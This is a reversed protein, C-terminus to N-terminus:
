RRRRQKRERRFEGECVIEESWRRFQTMWGGKLMKEMENEVQIKIRNKRM